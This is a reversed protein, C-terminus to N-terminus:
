IKVLWEKFTYWGKGSPVKGRCDHGEVEDIFEAITNCKRPSGFEIVRVKRGINDIRSDEIIEYIDENISIDKNILRDRLNFM